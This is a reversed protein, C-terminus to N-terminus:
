KIEVIKLETYPQRHGYKSKTRKKPRYKFVTIKENKGQAVVEATVKIKNAQKETKIVGDDSFFIADFTIKEGIENELKEVKIVDDVNVKYQKGGTQIVAYM